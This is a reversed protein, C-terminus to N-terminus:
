QAESLWRIANICFQPNLRAAPHNMGTPGRLATCISVEGLWIVRGKGVRRAAAHLWGDLSFHAWEARPLEAFPIYGISGPGFRLLPSWDGSARFAEGHFTAVSDIRELENRGRMIAHDLLEGRSRAFVDPITDSRARALGDIGIVGLLAGLEAAAGPAPTHDTILLLSGGSRLWGHLAVIEARTFASVRPYDWYRANAGYAAAIILLECSRLMETSLSDRTERLRYGDEQLLNALPLYAGPNRQDSQFTNHGLDM